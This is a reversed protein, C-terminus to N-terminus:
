LFDTALVGSLRFHPSEVLPLAKNWKLGYSPMETMFDGFISGYTFVGILSFCPSIRILNITLIVEGKFNDRSLNRGSSQPFM